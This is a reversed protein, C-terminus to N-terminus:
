VAISVQHSFFSMQTEAKTFKKKKKKFTTYSFKRDMWGHGRPSGRM